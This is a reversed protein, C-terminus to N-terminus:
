ELIEDVFGYEVAETANMWFEHRLMKKLKNKTLKTHQAYFDIMQDWLMEHLKARDEFDGYNGWVFDSFQHILIFSKPTIFRKRGALALLSAASAAVGEIITHVPTKLRQVFDTSAAMADMYGGNSNIHLRIPDPNEPRGRQDAELRLRSDLETLSRILALVRDSDVDAYFYVDNDMSEVTLHIPSDGNAKVAKPEDTMMYPKNM